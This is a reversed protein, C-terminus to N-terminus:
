GVVGLKELVEQFMDEFTKTDNCANILTSGNRIYNYRVPKIFNDLLFRMVTDNVEVAEVFKDNKM